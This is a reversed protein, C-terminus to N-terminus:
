RLWDLDKGILLETMKAHHTNKMSVRECKMSHRMALHRVDSADDYTMLVSGAVQQAVAFLAEHNLVHHTYLRSGARKGSAGGATYPPDVFFAASQQSNYQRMVEIGDGCVFTIRDRMESIAHIRQVLTQAYWRSKLGKGNEGHKILSAGPAMIGGHQMRNRIITRFARDCLNGGSTALLERVKEVSVEFEVIRRTLADANGSLIIEWVAAVQEDLEVLIVHDALNEFAATLGVIAGGAFPEVLYKPKQDLSRLWKRVKPILWTKGGPYRFPSRHPVSAVNVVSDPLLEGFMGLQRGANSQPM